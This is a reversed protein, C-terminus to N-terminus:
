GAVMLIAGTLMSAAVLTWGISRLRAPQPPRAMIVLASVLGPAAATLATVPLFGASALSILGTAGLGTVAFACRRTAAMARTNGGGQTRLIVTRVALTSTTFLLVFPLAITAASRLSSGAAISVPVSLGAFALAAAIEGFWSKEAHRVMAIALATAPVLPVLMSWRAHREIILIAMTGAVGCIVASGALWRMAAPRLQRKAHAGRLGLLLAAPEHAIFAAVASITLLLGGASLGATTLATVLPLALQGYAGHEKPLIM